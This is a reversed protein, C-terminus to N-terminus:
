LRDDLFDIIRDELNLLTHGAGPIVNIKAHPLLSRMRAASKESHFMVDKEGVFLITPMSLRQLESGSFLPFSETRYNYNKGVLKMFEMIVDPVDQSGNVKSLSKELGKEGMLMLPLSKFLFSLRQPGIGAPCLLVLKEVREPFVIAFKTALWGGLSMGVLSVRPIKLADVVDHLWQAYDGTRFPLQHEDSRGPEGPIDVAYVRYCTRYKAAAGVWTASNMWAGHLLILPPADEPGCAVVFSSGYRTSVHMEERPCPWHEMLQDYSQLIAAKGAPSKYALREKM